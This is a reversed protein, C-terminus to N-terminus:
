YKFCRLPEELGRIQEMRQSNETILLIVRAKSYQKCNIFADALVNWNDRNLMVGKQQLNLLSDYLKEALHESSGLGRSASLADKAAREFLMEARSMNGSYVAYEMALHIPRFPDQNEAKDSALAYLERAKEPMKLEEAVQAWHACWYSGEPSFETRIDKGLRELLEELLKRKNYELIKLHFEQALEFFNQKLVKGEEDPEWVRLDNMLSELNTTGLRM